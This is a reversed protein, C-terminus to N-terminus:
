KILRAAGRTALVRSMTVVIGSIAAAALLEGMRTDGPDDPKPTKHGTTRTWAADLLKGAIWAAGLTAVLGVAKAAMSQKDEDM